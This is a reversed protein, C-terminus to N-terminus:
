MSRQASDLGGSAPSLRTAPALPPAVSEGSYARGVMGLFQYLTSEWPSLPGPAFGRNGAGRHVRECATWDERNTLDWFNVAYAPDFGNLAMSEPSFYWDCEVFTRDVSLPVIRHTMVYDPHASILLNPWLGLYLVQRELETPLNRFFVGGSEGSLSMTVAHDKLDMTGGCWLGDPRFDTGSDIPTVECLAPHISSCHYCEHYNEVILKWNAAVEYSHREARILRQPEYPELVGALNGYTERLPANSGSLDIFLWGNWEGVVVAQLPWEDPDFGPSQTLTPATRLTGDLRYAWSHYPCRIQRADIPEGPEVLPHGRHRCVNSFGAVAGESDRTLLFEEGAHEIARLQGPGLLDETRGLCTWAASFIHEVEWDFVEPSRYAMSPLTRSEGFPRLIDSLAPADFPAPRRM